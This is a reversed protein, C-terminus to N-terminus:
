APMLATPGTFFTEPWFGMEKAKVRTRAYRKDWNGYQTARFNQILKKAFLDQTGPGLASMARTLCKVAPGPANVSYAHYACMAFDFDPTVMAAPETSEDNIPYSRVGVVKVDVVPAGIAKVYAANEAQRQGEILYAICFDRQASQGECFLEHFCKAWDEAAKRDSGTAPVTGSPPTFVERIMKGPVLAGDTTYRLTGDTAIYYGIAKLRDTVVRYQAALKPSQTAAIELHRMLKWLPGQGMSAPYLAVFHFPGGSIGCGDYSQVTGWSPGELAMALSVARNMHSGSVPKAPPGGDVLIGAYRGYTLHKIAM